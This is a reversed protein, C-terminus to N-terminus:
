VSRWGALPAQALAEARLAEIRCVSDCVTGCQECFEIQTDDRTRRFGLM